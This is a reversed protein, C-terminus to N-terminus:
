CGSKKLLCLKTLLKSFNGTYCGRQVIALTGVHVQIDAIWKGTDLTTFLPPNKEEQSRLETRGDHKIKLREDYSHADFPKELISEAVNATGAM